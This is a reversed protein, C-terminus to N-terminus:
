GMNKLGKLFDLDDKTICTNEICLHSSNYNQTDPLNGCVSGICMNPGKGSFVSGLVNVEGNVNLEDWMNVRRINGGQAKNGVIMLQKFGNVDNSIEAGDNKDDPYGTWNKSFRIGNIQVTSLNDNINIINARTGDKNFAIKALQCEDDDEFKEIVSSNHQIQKLIGEATYMMYSM